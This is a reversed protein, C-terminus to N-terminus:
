KKQFNICCKKFKKLSKCPCTDNRNINKFTSKEICNGDSYFRWEIIERDKNHSLASLIAAETPYESEFTTIKEM